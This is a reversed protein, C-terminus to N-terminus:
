MDDDEAFKPPAPWLSKMLEGDANKKSATLWGIPKVQDELRILARVMGDDLTHVETVVVREDPAVEGTRQSKMDWTGRVILPKRTAISFIGGWGQKEVVKRARMNKSLKVRLLTQVLIAAKGQKRERDKNRVSKGRQLAQMKKASQERKKEEARVKRVARGRILTQVKTAARTSAGYAYRTSSAQSEPRALLKVTGKAVVLGDTPTSITM